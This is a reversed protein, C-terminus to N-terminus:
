QPAGVRLGNMRAADILRDDYAVMIDVDLLVATALHLADLSRLAPPHLRRALSAVDGTISREAVGSLAVDILDNIEEDSRDTHILKSKLARSVEIWALTSSVLVADDAVYGVLTTDLADSEAEALARKILASSDLYVRM